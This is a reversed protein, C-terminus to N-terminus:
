ATMQLKQRCGLVRVSLASRWLARIDFIAFSPKIRDPMPHKQYSYRYSLLPCWLTLFSPHLTLNAESSGHIALLLLLLLPCSILSTLSTMYTVHRWRHPIPFTVDDHHWTDSTRCRYYEDNIARRAGGRGWSGQESVDDRLIATPPWADLLMRCIRRCNIAKWQQRISGIALSVFSVLSTSEPWFKKVIDSGVWVKLDLRDPNLFNNRKTVWGSGVWLQV